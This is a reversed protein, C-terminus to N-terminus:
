SECRLQYLIRRTLLIRTLVFMLLPLHTSKGYIIFLKVNCYTWLLFINLYLLATKFILSILKYFSYLSFYKTPSHELGFYIIFIQTYTHIRYPILRFYFSMNSHTIHVFNKLLFKITKIFDKQRRNFLNSQPANKKSDMEFWILKLKLNLRENNFHMEYTHILARYSRTRNPM